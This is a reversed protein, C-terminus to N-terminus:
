KDKKKLTLLIAKSDKSTKFEKPRDSVKGDEVMCITLTDGEIKYIGFSTEPKDGKTEKTDIEAPTKTADLKIELPAKDKKNPQTIKDGKIVITRDEESQKKLIEDPVKMGGQEVSFLVYTGDLSLKKDEKGALTTTTAVLLLVLGMACRM